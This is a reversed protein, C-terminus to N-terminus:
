GLKVTQSGDCNQGDNRTMEDALRDGARRSHRQKEEDAAENDSAHQQCLVMIHMNNFVATIDEVTNVSFQGVKM